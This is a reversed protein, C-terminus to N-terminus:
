DPTTSGATPSEVVRKLCQMAIFFLSWRNAPCARCGKECWIDRHIHGERFINERRIEFSLWDCVDTLGSRSTTAINLVARRYEKGAKDGDHVLFPWPHPAHVPLAQELIMYRVELPLDEFTAMTFKPLSLYAPRPHTNSCFSSTFHQFIHTHLEKEQQWQSLLNNRHFFVQSLDSVILTLYFTSRIRTFDGSLM